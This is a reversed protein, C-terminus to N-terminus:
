RSLQFASELPIRCRVLTEHTATEELIIEVGRTAGFTKFRYLGTGNKPRAPDHLRRGTRFAERVDDNLRRGNNRVSLLACEENEPDREVTMWVTAEGPPLGSTAAIANNLLEFALSEIWISPGADKVWLQEDPFQRLVDLDPRSYERGVTDCLLVLDFVSEDELRGTLREQAQLNMEADTLRAGEAQTQHRLIELIFEYAAAHILRDPDILDMRELMWGPTALREVARATLCGCSFLRSGEERLYGHRKLRSVVESIRVRHNPSRNGERWEDEFLEALTAESCGDILLGWALGLGLVLLDEDHDLDLEVGRLLVKDRDPHEMVSGLPSAAGQRAEQVLSWLVGPHGGSWVSLQDVARGDAAIGLISLLWALRLRAPETSGAPMDHPNVISALELRSCVVALFQMARETPTPTKESDARAILSLVDAIEFVAESGTSLTPDLSFRLLAEPAPAGGVGITVADERAWRLLPLRQDYPMRFTVSLREGVFSFRPRYDDDDPALLQHVALIWAEPANPHGAGLSKLAELVANGARDDVHPTFRTSVGNPATAPHAFWDAVEHTSRDRWSWRAFAKPRPLEQHGDRHTLAREAVLLEGDAIVSQVYEQWGPAMDTVADLQQTMVRRREDVEAAAANRLGALTGEAERLRPRAMLQPLLPPQIGAREYTLTLTRLQETIRDQADDIYAAIAAVLEEREFTGEPITSAIVQEAHEYEGARALEHVADRVSRHAALDHALADLSVDAATDSPSTLYTTVFAWGQWDRVPTSRPSGGAWALIRGLEATIVAGEPTQQDATGVLKYVHKLMEGLASLQEPVWALKEASARHELASCLEDVAIRVKLRHDIFSRRRSDTIRPIGPGRVVRKLWRGDDTTQLYDDRWRLVAGPDRSTLATKLLGLEGDAALLYRMLRGGTESKADYRSFAICEDAAAGWLNSIDATPVDTPPPASPLAGYRRLYIIASSFFGDAVTPPRTVSFLIESDAGSGPNDNLLLHVYDAVLLAGTESTNPDNGSTLATVLSQGSPSGEYLATTFSGRPRREPDPVLPRLLSAVGWNGNRLLGEIAVSAPPALDSRADMAVALGAGAIRVEDVLSSGFQRQAELVAEFGHEAVLAQLAEAHPNATVELVSQALYAPSTVLSPSTLAAGSKPPLPTGTVASWVTDAVVPSDIIVSFEGTSRRRRLNADVSLPNFSGVLSKDDHLVVKAHMTSRNAIDIANPGAARLDSLGACGSAPAERYRLSVAVGDAARSLLLAAIDQSLATETLHDCAILMRVRAAATADRVVGRHGLDTVTDVVPRPRTLLAEVRSAADAWAAAWARVYPAPAAEQLLEQQLRPLQLELEGASDRAGFAGPLRHLGYAIEPSPAKDYVYQLGAEIVPSRLSIRDSPTRAPDGQKDIATLLVGTEIHDSRSLFNKSTVLMRRDDCIVLKAHSRAARSRSYILRGSAGLRHAHATISDLWAAEATGLSEERGDIGWVLVIQVGREIAALLPDRIAELGRSRIWPVTIVVQRQADRILEAIVTDHQEGTSIVEVDMERAMRSQAVAAIQAVLTAAKDHRKQRDDHACTGLTAVHRRLEELVERADRTRLPVRAARERLRRVFLSRPQSDVMDQLRRSARARESMSLREDVVVVALEDAETIQAATRLRVYRRRTAVQLMAPQLFASVVRQGAVEDVDSDINGAGLAAVLEAESVESVARDAASAPVVLDRDEYPVRTVSASRPLARGLLREIVLEESAVTTASTALTESPAAAQDLERMGETTLSLTEYNTQMEVSVRGARWLDGLVQLVLRPALGFVDALDHHSNMGARIAEMLTTEINGASSRPALTLRATVVDAQAYIDFPM